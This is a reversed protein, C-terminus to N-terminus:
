DEDLESQVVTWNLSALPNLLRTINVYYIGSGYLDASTADESLQSGGGSYDQYGYERSPIVVELFWLTVEYRVVEQLLM